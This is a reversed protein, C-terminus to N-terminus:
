QEARKFKKSGEFFTLTDSRLGLRLTELGIIDDFAINGLNVNPGLKEIFYCQLTKNPAEFILQDPNIGSELIEAILGYRVEGSSRCIGSRGSERAETIVWQAGAKFDENICKIWQIPSFEQSREVDKFGVESLVKFHEGLKSIWKAKETNSIDITGNSVEIFSAEWDRCYSVFDDIRNQFLAKEFLSGGFFYPIDLSKLCNVKEELQETVLATGWGFKVLDVYSRHSSLCDKFKETGYGNDILVSLGSARPKTNREPFEIFNDKM